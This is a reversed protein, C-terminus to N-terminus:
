FGKLQTDIHQTDNHQTDNHQTDNYQTDHHSLTGCKLTLSGHEGTIQFEKSISEELLRELKNIKQRILV